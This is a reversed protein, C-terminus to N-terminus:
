VTLRQSPNAWLIACIEPNLVGLSTGRFLTGSTNIATPHMVSLRPEALACCHVVPFTPSQYRIKKRTGLRPM